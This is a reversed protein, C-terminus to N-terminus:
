RRAPQPIVPSLDTIVRAAEFTMPGIMNPDGSNGFRVFTGALTNRAPLLMFATKGQARATLAAHLLVAYGAPTGWGDRAVSLYRAHIRANDDRLFYRSRDTRWVNAAFRDYAGQAQFAPIAAFRNKDDLLERRRRELLETRFREPNGALAGTLSDAAVGQQLLRAVETVAGPSPRLWTTRSSFLLRADAARGDHATKWVTYFDLLETTTTASSSEPNARLATRAEEALVEARAANGALAHAIAGHARITMGVQDSEVTRELEIWLDCDAAAGRFDGALERAMAREFLAAPFLRILNDYFAQERAGFNGTLQAFRWVRASIALDYPAAAAMDFAKARAEELRGAGLLALAEIEMAGLRLSRQFPGTAVFAPRDTSVRRAETIAADYHGAEIQHIAGGLILQARRIDNSEIRLAEACIAIGDEGNLRRSADPTEHAPAFVGLLTVAGLLRAATEGATVNDPLGDCRIQASPTREARAPAAAVFTAALAAGALFVLKM